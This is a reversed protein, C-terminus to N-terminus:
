QSRPFVSSRRRAAFPFGRAPFLFYPYVNVGLFGISWHNFLAGSSLPDWGAYGVFGHTMEELIALPAILWFRPWAVAATLVAFLGFIALVGLWTNVPAERGPGTWAAELLGIFLAASLLPLIRLTANM